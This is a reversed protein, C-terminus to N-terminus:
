KQGLFKFRNSVITNRGYEDKIGDILHKVYADSSKIADEWIIRPDSTYYGYGEGDCFFFINKDIEPIYIILQGIGDLTNSYDDYWGNIDTFYDVIYGNYTTGTNSDRVMFPKTLDFQSKILSLEADEHLYKDYRVEKVNDIRKETSRKQSGTLEDIVSKVNNIGYRMILSKLLAELKEKEINSINM